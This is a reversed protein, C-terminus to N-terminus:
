LPRTLNKFPGFSVRIRRENVRSGRLRELKKSPDKYVAQMPLFEDTQFNGTGTYSSM